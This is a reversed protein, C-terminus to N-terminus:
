GRCYTCKEYIFLLIIGFVLEERQKIRLILSFVKFSRQSLDCKDIVVQHIFSWEKDTEKFNGM